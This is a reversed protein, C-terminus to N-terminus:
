LLGAPVRVFVTQAAAGKKALVEVKGFVAHLLRNKMQPRAIARYVDALTRMGALRAATDGALRTDTRKQAAGVAAGAGAPELAQLAALERELARRRAQFVAADYVGAEFQEFVFAMRRRLTEERKGPLVSAQADRSDDIAQRAAHVASRARAEGVTERAACSGSGALAMRDLARILLSEVDPPRLYGCGQGGCVLYTHRYRSWGGDRRRYRRDLSRRTFRRGCRACYVVGHLADCAAQAAAQAGRGAFPPDSRAGGPWVRGDVRQAAEFVEQSVLPPHADPVVIWEERPRERVKGERKETVRFHLEGLYVSKRLIRAIVEPQWRARGRATPIGLRALEAAIARPGLPRGDHGRIRLDFVLRVVRAEPEFPVLRQSMGDFRYGYPVSGAMWKGQWAYTYRAGLLRERTTEFEERSLFLEFRIQRADSNNAPDYVRWPTIILIRRARLLDYIEGMDAYSGRGLRSLEKVAVADFRGARLDALVEQFVPRTAIKDGSGIECRQVFPVGLDALVREMLLKQEALTDEGTRRERELDQRSRRLYNVVSKVHEPMLQGHM